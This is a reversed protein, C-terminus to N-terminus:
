REYRQRRAQALSIVKPELAAEAPELAQLREFFSGRQAKEAASCAERAQRYHQETIAAPIPGSVFMERLAVSEIRSSAEVERLLNGRALAGMAKIGSDLRLGRASKLVLAPTLYMALIARFRSEM